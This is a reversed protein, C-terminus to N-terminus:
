SASFTSENSNEVVHVQECKTVVVIGLHESRAITIVFMYGRLMCTNASFGCFRNYLVQAVTDVDWPLITRLDILECSVGLETKAMERAKRLVQIQAGYGVLTVDSGPYM